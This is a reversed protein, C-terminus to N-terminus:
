QYKRRHYDNSRQGGFLRFVMRPWMFLALNIFVLLHGTNAIGKIGIAIAYIGSLAALLHACFRCFRDGKEMDAAASLSELVCYLGIGILIFDYLSHAAIFTQIQNM